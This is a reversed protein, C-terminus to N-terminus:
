FYTPLAWTKYCLGSPDWAESVITHIAPSKSTVLAHPTKWVHDVYEMLFLALVIAELLDQSLNSVEERGQSFPVVGGIIRFSHKSSPTSFIDYPM